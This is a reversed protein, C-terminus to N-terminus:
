ISSFSLSIPKLPSRGKGCMEKEQLRFVQQVEGRFLIGLDHDCVKTQGFHFLTTDHGGGTPGWAVHTLRSAPPFNVLPSYEVVPIYTVSLPSQSSDPNVKPTIWTSCESILNLVLWDM